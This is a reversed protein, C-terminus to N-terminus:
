ANTILKNTGLTTGERKKTKGRRLDGIISFHWLSLDSDLYQDFIMEPIVCVAFVDIRKM